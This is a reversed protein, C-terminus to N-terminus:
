VYSHGSRGACPLNIFLDSLFHRDASRVDPYTQIRAQEKESNEEMEILFAAENCVFFGHISKCGHGIKCPFYAKAFLDDALTAAYCNEQSVYEPFFGLSSEM